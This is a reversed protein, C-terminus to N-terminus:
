HTTKSFNFFGVKLKFSRTVQPYIYLGSEKQPINQPMGISYQRLSGFKRFLVEIDFHRLHFM